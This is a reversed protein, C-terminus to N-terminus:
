VCRYVSPLMEVDQFSKVVASTMFENQKQLIQDYQCNFTM